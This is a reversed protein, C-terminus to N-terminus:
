LNLFNRNQRVLYKDQEKVNKNNKVYKGYIEEDETVFLHDRLILNSVFNGILDKYKTSDLLPGDLM